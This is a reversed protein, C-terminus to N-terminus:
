TLGLPGKAPIGEPASRRMDDSHGILAAIKRLEYARQRCSRKCYKPLPGLPRLHFVRGCWACSAAAPRPIV